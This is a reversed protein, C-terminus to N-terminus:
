GPTGVQVPLAAGVGVGTLALALRERRQQVCQVANVYVGEESAAACMSQERGFSLM